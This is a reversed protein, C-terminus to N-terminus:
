EENIIKQLSGEGRSNATIEGRTFQLHLGTRVVGFKDLLSNELQRSTLMNVSEDLKVDRHSYRSILRNVYRRQLADPSRRRTRTM